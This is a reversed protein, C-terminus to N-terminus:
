NRFVNVYKIVLVIVVLISVCVIIVTNGSVVLLGSFLLIVFPFLRDMWDEPRKVAIVTIGVLSLFAVVYGFIKLTYSLALEVSSFFQGYDHLNDFGAYFVILFVAFVLAFLIIYKLPGFLRGQKKKKEQDEM